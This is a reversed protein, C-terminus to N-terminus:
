AQLRKLAKMLNKKESEDKLNEIIPKLTDEIRSYRLTKKRYDPTSPRGVKKNAM